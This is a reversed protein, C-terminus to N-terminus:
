LLLTPPPGWKTVRHNGSELVYLGGDAGCALDVPYRLQHTGSGTAHGGAVTLGTSSAKDWMVVRHNGCDAIYLNEDPGVFLAAPNCLQNAADGHGNGGAVTVGESAGEAWRQVRDNGSDCIYIMGEDTVFLGGLTGRFQNSAQGLGHSIAVTCAENTLPDFKQVRKGDDDLVYVCGCSTCRVGRPKNICWQGRGFVEGGSESILLVRDNHYDAILLGGDQNLGVSIWEGLDNIGGIAAGQGAIAKGATAGLTWKVVRFNGWDSIVM